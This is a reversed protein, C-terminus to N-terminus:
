HHKKQQRSWKVRSTVKGSRGWCQWLCRANFSNGVFEAPETVKSKRFPIKM